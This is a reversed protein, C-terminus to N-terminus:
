FCPLAMPALAAGELDWRDRGANPVPSCPGTPFGSQYGKALKSAVLKEFIRIATELSVPDPTKTGVTLNGGHRYYAFTVIFGATKPEIAVHYENEFPGEHFYLSMCKVTDPSISM